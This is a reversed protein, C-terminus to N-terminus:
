KAVEVEAWSPSVAKRGGSEMRSGEWVAFAVPIKEGAIFQVSGSDDVKLPRRFVVKWEGEKWESDGSTNTTKKPTITGPGASSLEMIIRKTPFSLPNEAARGPIFIDKEAQSKEIGKGKIPYDFTYIDTTMNPYATKTTQFGSKKDKGRWAKWHLIHVPKKEEGMFFEPFAGRIVPFQIATGDSFDMIGLSENKTPDKWTLRFSIYKGDNISQVFIEKVGIEAPKPVVLFQAQLPQRYSKMKGWIEDDLAIGGVDQDVHYSVIEVFKQREAHAVTMTMLFGLLLLITKKLM